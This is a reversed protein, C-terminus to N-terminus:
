VWCSFSTRAIGTGGGAAGSSSSDIRPGSKRAGITAVLLIVNWATPSVPADVADAIEVSAITASAIRGVDGPLVGGGRRREEEM